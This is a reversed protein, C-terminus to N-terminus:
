SDCASLYGAVLVDGRHDLILESLAMDNGAPDAYTCTWIVDGTSQDHKRILLDTYGSGTDHMGGTVVHGDNTFIVSTMEDNLDAGGDHIDSWSLTPVAWAVSSLATIWVLALFARRVSLARCITM